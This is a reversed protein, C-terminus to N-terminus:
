RRTLAAAIKAADVTFGIQGRVESENILETKNAYTLSIPVMVGPAIPIELRGQIRHIDDARHVWKYEGSFAVIWPNVGNAVASIPNLEFRGEGALRGSRTDAGLLRSNAYDYGANVTLDVYKWAGWDFIAHLRHLDVGDKDALKGQWAVALQPARKINFISEKVKDDQRIMADVADNRILINDIEDKQEQTLSALTTALAADSLFRRNFLNMKKFFDTPPTTGQSPFTVPDKATGIVQYLFSQIDLFASGIGASTTAMQRLATDIQKQSLSSSVDRQNILLLKFGAVKYKDDSDKEDGASEFGASFSVRRWGAGRRYVSPDLPKQGTFSTYLAYASASIAGDGSKKESSTATGAGLFQLAASVLDPGSTTDLLATSAASVSPQSSQKATASGILKHQLTTNRDQLRRNALETARCNIWEELSQPKACDVQASALRMCVVFTVILKWM